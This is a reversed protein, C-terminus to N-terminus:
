PTLHMNWLSSNFYASSVMSQDLSVWDGAELPVLYACDLREKEGTVLCAGDNFIIKASLTTQSGRVSRVLDEDDEDSEEAADKQKAGDEEDEQEDQRRPQWSTPVVPQWQRFGRCLPYRPNDPVSYIYRGPVLMPTEDLDLANPEFSQEHRRWRHLHGRENNALVACADAILSHPLAYNSAKTLQLDLPCGFLTLILRPKTYGPHFIEFPGTKVMQTPNKFFPRLEPLARPM